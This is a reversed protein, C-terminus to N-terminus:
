ATEHVLGQVSISGDLAEYESPDQYVIKQIRVVLGQAAVSGDLSETEEYEFTIQRVVLGQVDADGDLSEVVEEEFKQVRFRLGEVAVSGDLSEIEENEYHPDRLRAVASGGDVALEEQAAYPKSTFFNGEAREVEFLWQPVSGGLETLDEDISVMYATGRYAPVNVAGWISQLTPDPMQDWSGLYLRFTKLFVHNNAAGWATGRADYVLKNNRWIRSFATIPGECVGIAYTRYVHETKTEQKKKSGGKGGGSSSTKVWRKVPAQCHIINGGIPRVRGWVIVRPDGEKATQNAIQGLTQRIPKTKSFLMGGLAMGASFGYFAGAPGGIFFGAVAGAVGVAVQAM